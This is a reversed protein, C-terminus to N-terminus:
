KATWGTNGVGSTKVYLTTSVGGSINTYLSGVVATVVGEPTGTGTYLGPGTASGLKITSNSTSWVNGIEDFELRAVPTNGDRKTAIRLSGGTAGTQRAEFYAVNGIGTDAYFNLKALGAAAANLINVLKGSTWGTNELDSRYQLLYNGAGNDVYGSSLTVARNGMIMNNDAGSDLLMDGATNLETYVGFFKQGRAYQVFRIGYGTNSQAVVNFFANDIANAIHVGDGGNVRTDIHVGTGANVNPEGVPFTGSTDTNTHSIYLGHSVNNCTHLSDIRWLNANISSAGADAIGIHLGIGGSKRTSINEMKCRSGQIQLCAGTGKLDNDIDIGILTVDEASVRITATSGTFDRLFCTAGRIGSESSCGEGILQRQSALTISSTVRYVGAPFFITKGAALAATIAATDDAVGNGIASYPAVKINIVNKYVFDNVDNLWAAPVTTSGDVFTTDSM